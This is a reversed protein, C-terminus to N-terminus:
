LNGLIRWMLLILRHDGKFQEVGQARDAGCKFRIPSKAPYM